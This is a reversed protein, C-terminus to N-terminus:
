LAATIDKPSNDNGWASRVIGKAEDNVNYHIGNGSLTNLSKM